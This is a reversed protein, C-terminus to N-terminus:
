CLGWRLLLICVFPSPAHSLHYLMSSARSEIGQAVFFPLYIAIDAEYSLLLQIKLALTFHHLGKPSIPRTANFCFIQVACLMYMWVYMNM